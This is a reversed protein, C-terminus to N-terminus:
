GSVIDKNQPTLPGLTAECWAAARLLRSEEFPRAILQIADPLNDDGIRTPLSINPFGFCTWMIQFSPDGMRNNVDGVDIRPPRDSSTPAVLVDVEGFMAEMAPRLRNKWRKAHVYLAAPLLQNVEVNARVTPLYFDSYESYQEFHIASAEGNHIMWHVAVLFDMDAPLRVEETVAGNLRLQEIGWESALRVGSAAREMLDSLIGVRPPRSSDDPVYHLDDSRTQVSRPDRPDYGAIASLVIAADAVSRTIIGTHDSSWSTPLVGYCSVRGFTPKLGVVGCYAAPRLLSSTTQTGIAAPVQFAAVAAASGSTSAGPTHKLNWPNKTKPTDQSWAFQATVTKGALVAGAKRLQAAVGSDENATNARYPEFSASTPMGKIHIVDKLGFPVGLLPFSTSDQEATKDLRRAQLRAGAHDLYEWAGIEGDTDDIRKLTSEVIESPSLRRDRIAEVLDGVGLEFPEM